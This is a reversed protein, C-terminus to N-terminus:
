RNIRFLRSFSSRMCCKTPRIHGSRPATCWIRPLSTLTVGRVQPYSAVTDSAYSQAGFHDRNEVTDHTRLTTGDMAFLQLRKFLYAKRDQTM